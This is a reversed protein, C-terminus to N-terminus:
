HHQRRQHRQRRNRDFEAGAPGREVARHARPDATTGERAELEARHHLPGLVELVMELVEVLQAPRDELDAVIGPDRRDPSEQAAPRELDSSRGHLSLTYIETTATDNFFFFFFSCCSVCYM